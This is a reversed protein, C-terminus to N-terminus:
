TKTVSTEGSKGVAVIGKKMDVRVKGAGHAWVRPIPHPRWARFTEIREPSEEVILLRFAKLPMAMEQLIAVPRSRGSCSEPQIGAAILM